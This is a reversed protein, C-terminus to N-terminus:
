ISRRQNFELVLKLDDPPQYHTDNKRSRAPPCRGKHVLQMADLRADLGRARKKVLSEWRCAASRSTFGELYAVIRWKGPTKSTARAGGIIEGNHQRLRRFPDTTSGVYTTRGNTLLYVYWQTVEIYWM